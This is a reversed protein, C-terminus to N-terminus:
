DTRGQMQRHRLHQAVHRVTSGLGLGDTGQHSQRDALAGVGHDTSRGSGSLSWCVRPGHEEKSWLGLWKTSEPYVGHLGAVDHDSLTVQTVREVHNILAAHRHGHATGEAFVQEVRALAEALDRQQAIYRARGRDRCDLRTPQETEFAGVEQGGNGATNITPQYGCPHRSSVQVTVGSQPATLTRRPAGWQDDRRSKAWVARM